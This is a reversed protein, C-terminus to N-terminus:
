AYLRVFRHQVFAVRTAEPCEGQGGISRSTVASPATNISPARSPSRASRWAQRRRGGHRRVTMLLRSEFGRRCVKPTEALLVVSVAASRRAPAAQIGGLSRSGAGM